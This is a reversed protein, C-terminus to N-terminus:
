RASIKTTGRSVASRVITKAIQMPLITQHIQQDMASQHPASQKGTVLKAVISVAVKSNATAMATTM